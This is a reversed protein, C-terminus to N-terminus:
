SSLVTRKLSTYTVVLRNFSGLPKSLTGTSCTHAKVNLGCLHRKVGRGGIDTGGAISLVYQRISLTPLATLALRSSLVWRGRLGSIKFIMLCCPHTASSYSCRQFRSPPPDAQRLECPM